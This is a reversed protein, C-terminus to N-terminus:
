VLQLVRSQKLEGFAHARLVLAQFEKTSGTTDLYDSMDDLSQAYYVVLLRALDGAFVPVVAMMPTAPNLAEIEPLLALAEKLHARAVQYERQVIVPYKSPEGYVTRFVEPGQWTAARDADADARLQIFLPDKVMKESTQTGDKFTDFSGYVHVSGAGEGFLVRAIRVRAGARTMADGLASIRQHALQSKGSMPTAIRRSIITM